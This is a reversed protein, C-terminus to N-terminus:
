FPNKDVRSLHRHINEYMLINRIQPHVFIEEKFTADSLNLFGKKLYQLAHGNKVLAKVFIKM